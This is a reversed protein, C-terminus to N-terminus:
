YVGHEVMKYSMDDVYMYYRKLNENYKMIVDELLRAEKKFTLAEKSLERELAIWKQYLYKWKLVNEGYHFSVNYLSAISINTPIKNDNVIMKSKKYTDKTVGENVPESGNHIKNNM